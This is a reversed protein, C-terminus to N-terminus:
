MAFHDPMQVAPVGGAALMRTLHALLREHDPVWQLAASSVLLDM